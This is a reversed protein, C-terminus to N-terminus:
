APTVTVSRITLKLKPEGGGGNGYRDDHGAAAVKDIIDLGATVEGFVPYLPPLPNDQYSIFFQSGNTDPGANAMSVVGRRYLDSTPLNEDAYEYGPGGKSNGEPDGCQLVWLGDDTLRHCSTRNYFDNEALYRFSTVTCPAAAGDLKLVITGLNTALKAIM